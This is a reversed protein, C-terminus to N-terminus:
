SRSNEAAAGILNLVFQIAMLLIGIIGAVIIGGFVVVFAVAAWAGTDIANQIDM